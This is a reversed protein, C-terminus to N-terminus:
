SLIKFHTHKNQLSIKSSEVHYSDIIFFINLTTINDSFLLKVLNTQHLQM